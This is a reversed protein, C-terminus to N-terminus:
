INEILPKDENKKLFVLLLKNLVDLIHRKLILKENEIILLHLKEKLFYLIQFEFILFKSM